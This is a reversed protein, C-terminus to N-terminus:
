FNLFNNSLHICEKSQLIQIILNQYNLFYRSIVNKNLNNLDAYQIFKIVDSKYAHVTNQSLGKEYILYDQFSSLLEKIELKQQTM